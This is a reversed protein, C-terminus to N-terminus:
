GDQQNPHTERRADGDANQRPDLTWAPALEGDGYRLWDKARIMRYVVGCNAHEAYDNAENDLIASEARSFHDWRPNVVVSWKEQKGELRSLIVRFVPLVLAHDRGGGAGKDAPTSDSESNDPYNM